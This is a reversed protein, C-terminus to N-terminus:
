LRYRGLDSRKGAEFAFHMRRIIIELTCWWYAYIFMCHVYSKLSLVLVFSCAITPLRCVVAYILGVCFVDVQINHIM